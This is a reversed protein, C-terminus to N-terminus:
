NLCYNHCLLYIYENSDAVSCGNEEMDNAFGKIKTAYRSFSASDSKVQKYFTIENLLDDMLKRKDAFEKDL